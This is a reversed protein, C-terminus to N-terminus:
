RLRDGCRLRRYTVSGAVVAIGAVADLGAIGGVASACGLDEGSARQRRRLASLGAADAAGGAQRRLWRVWAAEPEVVLVRPRLAGGLEVADHRVRAHRLDREILHDVVQVPVGLLDARHGAGGAEMDAKLPVGAVRGDGIPVRLAERAAAVAEGRAAVGPPLDPHHAPVVFRLVVAGAARVLADADGDVIDGAHGGDGIAQGEERLGDVRGRARAELGDGDM